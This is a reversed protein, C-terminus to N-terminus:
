VSMLQKLAQVAAAVKSTAAPSEPQSLGKM